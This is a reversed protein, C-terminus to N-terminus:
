KEKFYDYDDGEEGKKDLGFARAIGEGDDHHFSSAFFIILGIALTVMSIARTYMDSLNGFGYIYILIGAIIWILSSLFAIYINDISFAIIFLIVGFALLVMMIWLSISNDRGTTTVPFTYAFPKKNIGDGCYGTVTYTGLISTNSGPLVYIFSTGTQTMVVDNVITNHDPNVITSINCYSWMATGNTGGQPLEVSHGQTVPALAPITDSEGIASVSAFSILISLIVIGFLIINRKNMTNTEIINIM